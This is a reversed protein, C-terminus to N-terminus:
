LILTANHPSVRPMDPLSHTSASKSINYIPILFLTKKKKKIQPLLTSGFNPFPKGFEVRILHKVKKWEFYFTSLKIWNHKRIKKISSM